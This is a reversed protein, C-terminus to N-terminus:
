SKSCFEHCFFALYFYPPVQYYYRLVWCLGLTYEAAVKQRFAVSEPDNPPIGFKAEYYRDQFIIENSFFHRRRENELRWEHKSHASAVKGHPEKCHAQPPKQTLKDHFWKLCFYSKPRRIPRPAKLHERSNTSFFELIEWFSFFETFNHYCQSRQVLDKFCSPM